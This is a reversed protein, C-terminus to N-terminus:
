REKSTCLMAKRESSHHHRERSMMLPRKQSKMPQQTRTPRNQWQKWLSFSLSRGIPPPWVAHAFLFHREFFEISSICLRWLTSLTRHCSLSPEMSKTHAAYDRGWVLVVQAMNRLTRPRIGTINICPHFIEIHSPLLSIQVVHLLPRPAVRRFFSSHNSICM